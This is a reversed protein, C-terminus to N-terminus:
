KRESESSVEEIFHEKGQSTKFKRSLNYLKGSIQKYCKRKDLQEIIFPIDRGYEMYAKVLENELESTWKQSKSNHRVRSNPTFPQQTLNSKNRIKHEKNTIIQSHNGRHPRKNAYRQSIHLQEDEDLQESREILMSNDRDDNRRRYNIPAAKQNFNKDKLLASYRRKRNILDAEEVPTDEPNEIFRKKQNGNRSFSVASEVSEESMERLQTQPRNLHKSM